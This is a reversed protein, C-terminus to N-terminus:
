FVSNTVENIGSRISLDLINEYGYGQSFESVIVSKSYDFFDIEFPYNRIGFDEMYAKSGPSSIYTDCQCVKLIEIILADKEKSIGMDSSKLFETEFGLLKSFYKITWINFDAVTIFNENNLADFFDTAVIKYHAKSNAQLVTRSLKSFFRKPNNIIASSISSQSSGIIPLSQWSVGNSNRFLNRSQWSQKSLEVSDLFVFRDTKSLLEFYGLWPFFTPQMIGVKM